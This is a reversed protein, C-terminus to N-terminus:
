LSNNVTSEIIRGGDKVVSLQKIGINGKNWSHEENTLALKAIATKGVDNRIDGKNDTIRKKIKQKSLGNWYSTENNKAYEIRHLPLM